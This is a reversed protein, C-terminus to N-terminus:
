FLVEGVTSTFIPKTALFDNKLSFFNNKKFLIRLFNKKFLKGVLYNKISLKTCETLNEHFKSLYKLLHHMKFYFVLILKTMDIFSTITAFIEDQHGLEIDRSM